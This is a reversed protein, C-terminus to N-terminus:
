NWGKLAAGISVLMTVALILVGVLVGIGVKGKTSMGRKSVKKVEGFSLHTPQAANPTIVSFGDADISVLTGILKTGDNETVKIRNGTGRENLKRIIEAYAPPAASPSAAPALAPAQGPCATSTSLALCLTLPLFLVRRLTM